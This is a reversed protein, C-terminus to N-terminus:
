ACKQVKVPMYVNTIHFIKCAQLFLFVFLTKAPSTRERLAPSNVARHVPDLVDVGETWKVSAVSIVTRVSLYCQSMLKSWFIM